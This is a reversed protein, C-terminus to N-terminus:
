ATVEKLAWTRVWQPLTVDSASLLEDLEEVGVGRRVGLFQRDVLGPLCLSCDVPGRSGELVLVGRALLREFSALFLASSFREISTSSQAAAFRSYEDYLIAYNYPQIQKREVHMVCVLICWEVVSCVSPLPFCAFSAAYSVSSFHSSAIRYPPQADASM